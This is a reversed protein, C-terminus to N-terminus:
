KTSLELNLGELVFNKRLKVMDPYFRIKEPQKKAKYDGSDWKGNKNLDEIVRLYYEGPKVFSFQFDAKTTTKVIKFNNDMLEVIVNAETGLVKGIITGYNEEDKIKIKVKSAALTDNEISIFTGKPIVIKLEKKAAFNCNIILTSNYNEWKFNVNTLQEAKTSDSYIKIQALDYKEIPKNFVMKYSITAPDIEESETPTITARFEEKDKAIDKINGKGDRFKIKQVTELVLGSSDTVTMKVQITDKKNKANFFQIETPSPQFYPISDAPNVFKVNIKELGKDYNLTYYNIRPTGNRAKPAQNKVYYLDLIVGAMQTSSKLVISDANYGIRENKINYTMSRNKDDIAILQYTAPRVNEINFLGASDTRTFYTPKIKEPNLTDSNKYLGVLVDLMSKGNQSDRIKGSVAASDIKSGTSFVVRLNKVPNKENFDKVADGFALSYTNDKELEKKFTLKLGTPFTKVDYEGADPTIQLKQQLNETVIYEDFILEVTKGKYGTQKNFPNSSILKPAIIDRKGGTPSIQQSCSSLLTYHIIYLTATIVVNKINKSYTKKM